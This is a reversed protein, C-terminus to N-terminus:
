TRFLKESNQVPILDVILQQQSPRRKLVVQFLEEVQQVKERWLAELLDQGTRRKM